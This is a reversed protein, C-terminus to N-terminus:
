IHQKELNIYISLLLMKLARLIERIVMMKEVALVLCYLSIIYYCIVTIVSPVKVPLLMYGAGQMM